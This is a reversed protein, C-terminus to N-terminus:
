RIRKWHRIGYFAGISIGAVVLIGVVIFLVKRGKGDKEGLIKDILGEGESEKEEEGDGVGGDEESDEGGDDIVEENKCSFSCGDGNNSNGDDCEEGTEKIGNGCIAGTTTSSGGGGGGGGGPSNGDGDVGTQTTTYTSFECFPVQWVCNTSDLLTADSTRDVCNNGDDDCHYLTTCNGDGFPIKVRCIEPHLNNVIKDRTKSGLGSRTSSSIFSDDSTTLTRVKDNLGTKSVSANIFEFYTSNDDKLLKINIGRGNTYNMKLGANPGCVAGQEHEYLSNQDADYLVGWLSPEKLRLVFNCYGCSNTTTTRLRTCQSLSCRNDTDCIKLKYYYDKDSDLEYGLSTDDGDNYIHFNQWTKYERVFTPKRIGIDFMTDNLIKCTSDNNYFKLTGNVPKTIDFMLLASDPYEEVRVGRVKPMTTDNYGVANVGSSTCASSFECAWDSCDIAGNEDDDVNNYCDEYQVFGKKLIGEFKAANAGYEFAGGLEFDIAGPTAWGPGASDSPTTINTINNMTAVFLRIDATSVYLNPFRALEGKEVAIMPGGIENCMKQKWANIKIDTVEWGSGCKYSTFSEVAKSKNDNWESSYRLKFEYGEASTSEVDCGDVSSGDTDLYVVFKVTDKGNGTKESGSGSEHENGGFGGAVYSSIKVKNCISANSFDYVTSAIGYADDMDKMGFSCIDVSAPIDTEPCADYGIPVPVGPEMQDFIENVGGPNCWGNLWRCGAGCASETTASFCTPECGYSTSNCYANADCEGADNVLTTNSWCQDMINTCYSGFEDSKMWCNNTANCGGSVNSYEWCGSGLGWDVECWPNPESFWSCTINIKTSNTCYTKNGDYKWCEGGFSGGVGGGGSTGGTNFGDAPNCWGDNRWKCGDTADCSGQNVSNTSNWCSQSQQDECWGTEEIFVCGAVNTCSSSSNYLTSNYCSPQCTGGGGGYSQWSCAESAGNCASQTMYSWCIGLTSDCYSGWQDTRWSCGAADGCSTSDFNNWCQGSWNVECHPQSWVDRKWNCGSVGSCSSNTSHQWCDQYVFSPHDCWGGFNGCWDSGNGQGNCWTDNKWQCSLGDGATIGFCHSENQGNFCDDALGWDQECWGSGSGAQWECFQSVNQYYNYSVNTYNWLMFATFSTNSFNITALNYDATYNGILSGGTVNTINVTGAVWGAGRNDLTVTKTENIQGYIERLDTINLTENIQTIGRCTVENGDNRWCQSGRFDCWSGWVDTIWECNSDDECTNEESWVFCDGSVMGCFSDSYCGPDACDVLGDTDDDEGNWCIEVDGAVNAVCDGDDDGGQWKCSGSQNAVNTRGDNVCESRTDCRDCVDECVKADKDICYGGITTSNDDKWKCGTPFKKCWDEPTKTGNAGTPDGMFTCAPCNSSSCAEAVGSVFEEKARCRGFGNSAGTDPTFECYGLDSGYCDERADDTNNHPSGDSQYDCAFCAKNCNTEDDFKYECRGTPVSVSGTCYNETIWKGGISECTIRNEITVLSQTNNGWIEKKKITCLAPSTTNDWKCPWYWPSGSLANCKLKTTADDCSDEGTPTEDLDDFCSGDFLQEACAGSQWACCTSLVAIDNCLSSSNIMSCNMGTSGISGNFPHTVNIDCSTSTLNVCGYVSNCESGNNDFIYCGPNWQNLISESDDVTSWDPATCNGGASSNTWDNAQWWCYWSDYCQGETTYSTCNTSSFDTECWGSGNGSQNVWNCNLGNTTANGNCASESGGSYSSWTWCGQEVCWGSTTWNSWICQQREGCTTSDTVAWCDDQMCYGGNWTCDINNTVNANECGSQNGDFSWCGVEQCWGTSASGQWRCHTAANCTTINNYLDGRWCADEVCGTGNSSWTCNRGDWANVKSNCTAEGNATYSSCSATECVGISCGTTNGCQSLNSYTWCQANGGGSSFCRNDWTCGRNLSNNECTNADTGDWTYCGIEECFFSQGGSEWSCNGILSTCETETDLNWCSLEECWSGWDDSRWICGNESTCEGTSNSTYSYCNLAAVFSMSIVISLVLIFLGLINDRATRSFM